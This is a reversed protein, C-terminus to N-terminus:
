IINNSELFKLIFLKFEEDYNNQELISINKKIFKKDEEISNSFGLGQPINIQILLRLFITEFLNESEIVAENITTDFGKLFEIKKLPNFHVKGQYALSVAYYAKLVPTTIETDSLMGIFEKITKSKGNSCDSLLKRIKDM